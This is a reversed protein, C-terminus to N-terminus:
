GFLQLSKRKVWGRQQSLKNEGRIHFRPRNNDPLRKWDQHNDLHESITQRDKSTMKEKDMGCVNVWLELICTMEGDSKEDRYEDIMSIKWDEDHYNQRMENLESDIGHDYDAPLSGDHYHAVAEAWAQLIYDRIVDIHKWIKKGDSHVVVPFFRRNGTQDTLFASSNTTGIFICRRPLRVDNHAYPKRYKDCQATIFSKIEELDKARRMASLEDIEGIWLGGINEIAEKGSFTRVLGTYGLGLQDVITTKGSGQGGVLVPMNDWKCGPEFARRVGGTFIMQSIERTVANDDCKMVDHLFQRTRPKGDWVLSCLQEILPNIRNTQQCISIADRMNTRHSIGYVDQCYQAIVAEDSDSYDRWHDDFIEARQSMDNFRIQFHKRIVDAFTSINNSAKPPVISIDSKNESADAQDKKLILDVTSIELASCIQDTSCGFLCRFLLKQDGGPNQIVSLKKTGEGPKRKECCPCDAYWAQYGNSEVNKLKSLINKVISQETRIEEFPPTTLTGTHDRIKKNNTDM